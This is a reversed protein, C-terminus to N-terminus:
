ESGLTITESMLRLLLSYLLNQLINLNTDGNVIRYVTTLSETGFWIQFYKKFM